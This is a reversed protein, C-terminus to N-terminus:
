PPADVRVVIPLDASALFGGRAYGYVRAVHRDTAPLDTAASVTISTMEEGDDATAMTATLGDPLNVADLEVDAAESGIPRSVYIAIEVSDGARLVVDGSRVAIQLTPGPELEPPSPEAETEPVTAEDTRVTPAPPGSLHTQSAPGPDTAPACAALLVGSLLVLRCRMAVVINM